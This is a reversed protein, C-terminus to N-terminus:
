DIERERERERMFTHARASAHARALRTRPLMRLRACRRSLCLSLSLAVHNEANTCVHTACAQSECMPVFNDICSFMSDKYM